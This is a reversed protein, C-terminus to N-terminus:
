WHRLAYPRELICPMKVGFCLCKWIAGGWTASHIRRPRMNLKHWQFRQDPWSADYFLACWLIQNRPAPWRRGSLLLHIRVFFDIEFDPLRWFTVLIYLFLRLYGWNTDGVSFTIPFHSLLCFGDFVQVLIEVALWFGHCVLVKLDKLIVVGFRGSGLSSGVGSDRTDIEPVSVSRSGRFGCRFVHRVKIQASVQLPSHHRLFAKSWGRAVCM